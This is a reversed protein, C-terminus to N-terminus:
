GGSLCHCTRLMSVTMKWHPGRMARLYYKLDKWSAQTGPPPAPNRNWRAFLFVQLPWDNSNPLTLTLSSMTSPAATPRDLHRESGVVQHNRKTSERSRGHGGSGIALVDEVGSVIRVSIRANLESLRTGYRVHLIYCMGVLPRGFYERPKKHHRILTEWKCRVNRTMANFRWSEWGECPAVGARLVGRRVRVM